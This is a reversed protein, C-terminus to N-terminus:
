RTSESIVFVAAVAIHSPQFMGRGFTNFAKHVVRGFLYGLRNQSPLPFRNTSDPHRFARVNGFGVYEFYDDVLRIGRRRAYEEYFSPLIRWADFPYNHLPWVAPTLVVLTGGQRVLTRANDLVRIPDFTHELVNLILVCGFPAVSEFVRLTDVHEFNAVFDVGPGAAMDTGYYRLGHSAILDRCTEGGYGAGLELVPGTVIGAGLLRRVYAIDESVM